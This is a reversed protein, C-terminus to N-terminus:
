ASGTMLGLAVLQARIANLLAIADDRHAASDYAGATAGTGGAPAVAEDASASVVVPTADFFGVKDANIGVSTVGTSTCFVMLDGTSDKISLADASNAKLTIDYQATAATSMDIGKTVLVLDTGIYAKKAVGLGGATHISGTTSSSADTTGAVAFQTATGVLTLDDASEDWLLYNGTTNGYFKVDLGATNAGVSIGLETGSTYTGSIINLGICTVTGTTQTQNPMQLDIGTWNIVGAGTNQVLAGATSLDFATIATTNAATQTLAPLKVIFGTLDKDTTMTVNANFDLEMGITDDTLTEATGFNLDIFTGYGWADAVIDIITEHSTPTITISGTSTITGDIAAIGTLTMTTATLTIATTAALALTNQASAQISAGTDHFNIKTATAMTVAGSLGVTSSVALTGTITVAGTCALTGKMIVGNASSDWLWQYTSTDGYFLVDKGGGNTGITLTGGLTQDLPVNITDYTISGSVTLDGTVAVTTAVLALTGSASANIYANEDDFFLKNDHTCTTGEEGFRSNEMWRLRAM